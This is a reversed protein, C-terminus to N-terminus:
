HGRKQAQRTATRFLILAASLALYIIGPAGGGSTNTENNPGWGLGNGDVQVISDHSTMAGKENSVTVTYRGADSERAPCITLSSETAGRIENGGKKWQYVVQETNVVVSLTFSSSASVTLLAQPHTLIFPKENPRDQYNAMDTANEALVRANFAARPQDIQVGTPVRDDGFPVSPNSFYSITTGGLPVYSMITGYLSTKSAVTAMFCHGYNYYDDGDTAGTGPEDRDHDCGFNHAMEHALVQHSSGQWVVAYNGPCYAWGQADTKENGFYLVFQDAGHYLARQEVFKGVASSTDIMMELDALSTEPSVYAPMQYIAVFRWYFGNVNSNALCANSFNVGAVAQSEIRTKGVVALTQADYFFVVDVGRANSSAAVQTDGTSISALDVPKNETVPLTYGAVTGCYDPADEKLTKQAVAGSIFYEVHKGGVPTSLTAYWTDETAVTVIFAGDEAATRGIWVTRGAEEHSSTMTYDLALDSALAVTLVEPKFHRWDAVPEKLSPLIEGITVNTTLPMVWAKPAPKLAVDQVAASAVVPAEAAAETVIAPVTTIHTDGASHEQTQATTVAQPAPTKSPTQWVLTYGGLIALAGIACLTYKKKM